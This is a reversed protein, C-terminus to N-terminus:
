NVVSTVKELELAHANFLCNNFASWDNLIEVHEDTSGPCKILKVILTNHAAVITQVLADYRDFIAKAEGPTLQSLDIKTTM